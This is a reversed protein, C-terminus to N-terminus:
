TDLVLDAINVQFTRGMETIVTCMTNQMSVVTGVYFWKTVGFIDAHEDSPWTVKAGAVINSYNASYPILTDHAAIFSVPQTQHMVHYKTGNQDIVSNIVVPFHGSGNVMLAKDGIKFPSNKSM